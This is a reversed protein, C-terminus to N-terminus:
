GSFCSMTVAVVSAAFGAQWDSLFWDTEAVLRHLLCVSLIKYAHNLLGLARYANPNDRSGKHKFLMVFMCLVLSKPM